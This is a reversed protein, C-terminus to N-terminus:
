YTPVPCLYWPEIQMLLIGVGEGIALGQAEGEKRYGGEYEHEKAGAIM